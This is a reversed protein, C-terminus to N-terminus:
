AALEDLFTTMTRAACVLAALGVATMALQSQIVDGLARLHFATAEASYCRHGALCLTDVVAPQQIGWFGLPGLVLFVLAAKIWGRHLLTTDRLLYLGSAFAVIFAIGGVVVAFLVGLGFESEIALVGLIAMACNTACATLFAPRAVHDLM